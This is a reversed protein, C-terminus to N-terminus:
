ALKRPVDAVSLLCDAALQLFDDGAGAVDDMLHLPSLEAVVSWFHIIPLLALSIVIQRRWHSTRQEPMGFHRVAVGNEGLVKWCLGFM